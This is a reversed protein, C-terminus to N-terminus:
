RPEPSFFFIQIEVLLIVRPSYVTLLFFFEQIRFAPTKDEQAPENM